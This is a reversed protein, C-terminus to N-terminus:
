QFDATRQRFIAVENLAEWCSFGVVGSGLSVILGTGAM